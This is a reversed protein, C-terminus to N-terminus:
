IEKKRTGILVLCAGAAAFAIGIVEVLRVGGAEVAWGGVANGIAGGIAVAATMYGQGKAKDNAEMMDDSYYVSASAFVAYSIMQICQVMYVTGISFAFFYGVAKVLFGISAIAMLNRSSIRRILFFFGFMVPLEILAEISMATGLTGSNGGVSEIIMIMYTHIMNHFCMFMVSGLVTMMFMPYKRIFQVISSNDALLEPEDKISPNLADQEKSYIPMTMVLAGAMVLMILGIVVISFEGFAVISNGVIFTMFAYALSGTGRATGFDIFEGRSTYYFLASNVLPNQLYLLISFAPFLIANLLHNQRFIIMIVLLVLEVAGLFLMLNKWNIKEYKDVLTGVLVQGPAAIVNSAAIIVGIVIASIGQSRMFVTIFITALGFLMWFFGQLLKYQIDRLGIRM